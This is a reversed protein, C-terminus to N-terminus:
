KELRKYLNCCHPNDVCVQHCKHEVNISCFKKAGYSELPCTEITEMFEIVIPLKISELKLDESRVDVSTAILCLFVILAHIM